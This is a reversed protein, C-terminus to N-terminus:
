FSTLHLHFPTQLFVKGHASAVIEHSRKTNSISHHDHEITRTILYPQGDDEKGTWIRLMRGRPTAYVLILPEELTKGTAIVVSQMKRTTKWLFSEVFLQEGTATHRYTIPVGGQTKNIFQNPRFTFEEPLDKLGEQGVFCRLLNRVNLPLQSLSTDCLRPPMISIVCPLIVCVFNLAWLTTLQPKHHSDLEALATLAVVKILFSHVLRRVSFSARRRGLCRNSSIRFTFISHSARQSFGLALLLGLSAQHWAGDIRFTFSVLVSLLAPGPAWRNVRLISIGSFGLM